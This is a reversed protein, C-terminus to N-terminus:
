VSSTTIIVGVMLGVVGVLSGLQTDSLQWEQELLPFVATVVQRSMYESLMLGFLLTFVVWAYVGRGAPSATTATADVHDSM